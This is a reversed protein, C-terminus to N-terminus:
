GAIILKTEVDDISAGEVSSVDVAQLSAAVFAAIHAGDVDPHPGSNWQGLDATTTVAMTFGDMELDAPPLEYIVGTIHTGQVDQLSDLLLAKLREADEPRASANTLTVMAYHALSLLGTTATAPSGNTM